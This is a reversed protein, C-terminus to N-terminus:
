NLNSRSITLCNGNLNLELKMNKSSKLKLIDSINENKQTPYMEINFWFSFVCGKNFYLLTYM